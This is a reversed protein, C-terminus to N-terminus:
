PPHPSFPVVPCQQSHLSACGSHSIIHLKRLFILVLVVMYIIWFNWKQTNIWLFDSDQLSIQVGMNVSANNMITLVHFYSTWWQSFLYLFHPVYVISHYKTKFLLWNKWKHCHPHIETKCSSIEKPFGWICLLVFVM